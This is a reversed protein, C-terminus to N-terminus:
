HTAEPQAPAANTAQHERQRERQRAAKSHCATSCYRRTPLVARMTAGCQQCTADVRQRKASAASYYARVEPPLDLVKKRM